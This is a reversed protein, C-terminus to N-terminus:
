YLFIILKENLHHIDLSMIQQVSGFSAGISPCKSRAPLENKLWSFTECCEAFFNDNLLPKSSVGPPMVLITLLRKM